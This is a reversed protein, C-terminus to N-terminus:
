ALDPRWRAIAAADGVIEVESPPERGVLWLYLSEAPASVRLPADDGGSTFYARGGDDYILWSASADSAVLGCPTTPPTWPEGWWQGRHYQMVCLQDIGELSIEKTLPSPHDVVMAVDWVHIAVEMITQRLWFRAPAMSNFAWTDGDLDVSKARDAFRAANREVYDVLDGYDEPVPPMAAMAVAIPDTHHPPLTLNSYYWGAYEMAVHDVLQRMSWEPCSPVMREAGALRAAKTFETGLEFALEIRRSDDMTAGAREAVWSVAGACLLGQRM